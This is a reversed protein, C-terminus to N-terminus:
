RGLLSRLKWWPSALRWWLSHHVKWLEGGLADREASIAAERAKAEELRRAHRAREERFIMGLRSFRTAAEALRIETAARRTEAEALRTGAEALRTGTEALRTQIEALRVGSERLRGEADDLRERLARAEQERLWVAGEFEDVAAMTAEPTRLAAHKAFLALRMEEAVPGQWPNARMANTDDDRVRYVATTEPVHCFRTVRSLRILFEWDEFLDFDTDFPGTKEVLDRRHLLAILPVDNKFLIRNADFPRGYHFLLAEDRWLGDPGRRRAIQDVGSFAAGFDNEEELAAVLRELHTPRYVDDDDLYAIFTGRAAALGANLARVRGGPPEPRVIRLARGPPLALAAEPIAGGDNAVITEFDTFTQACLSGFAEALLDPRDKTRVIVSVKPPDGSVTAV